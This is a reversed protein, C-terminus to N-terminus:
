RLHICLKFNYKNELTKMLFNHVWKRDDSCYAIFIDYLYSHKQKKQCTLQLKSRYYYTLIHFRYKYTLLCVLLLMMLSSVVSVAILYPSVYKPHCLEQIKEMNVQMIMQLGTGTYYQQCKYNEVRVFTILTNESSQFLRITELSDESCNCIFPNGVLQINIEPGKHKSLLSRTNQLFFSINNYSLNLHRIQILYDMSSSLRPESVSNNALNVFMEKHNCSSFFHQPIDSIGSSPIDLQTLNPFFTCISDTSSNELTLNNGQLSLHHLNPFSKLVQSNPLIMDMDNYSLNLNKVSDLGTMKINQLVHSIGKQKIYIGNSAFSVTELQNHAFCITYQKFSTYQSTSIDLEDAIIVKINQGLPVRLSNHCNFDILSSIDLNRPFLTCPFKHLPKISQTFECTSYRSHNLLANFLLHKCEEEGNYEGVNNHSQQYKQSREFRKGYHGQTAFNIIEIVPNLMVELLFSNTYYGGFLNHSANFLRIYPLVTFMGPKIGVLYNDCLELCMVSSNLLPQFFHGPSLLTWNSYTFLRNLKLVKLNPKNGLASMISLLDAQYRRGLLELVQLHPMSLLFRQLNGNKDIAQPFKLHLHEIYLQRPTDGYKLIMKLPSSTNRVIWLHTLHSLNHINDMDIVWNDISLLVSIHLKQVSRSSLQDLHATMESTKVNIYIM